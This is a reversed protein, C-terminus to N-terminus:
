FKVTDTTGWFFYSFVLNLMMSVGIVLDMARGVALGVGVSGGTARYGQSACIIVM